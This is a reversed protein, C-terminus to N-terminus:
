NCYYDNSTVNTIISFLLLPFFFGLPIKSFTVNVMVCRLVRGEPTSLKLIFGSVKHEAEM